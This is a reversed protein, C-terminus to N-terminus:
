FKFVSKAEAIRESLSTATDEGSAACKFIPELVEAFFGNLGEQMIQAGSQYRVLGMFVGHGIAGLGSAEDAIFKNLAKCVAVVASANVIERDRLYDELAGYDCECRIWRFAKAISPSVCKHESLTCLVYLNKPVAFYSRGDKLVVSARAKEGEEFGDIVHSNKTRILSLEDEEDYRRDLLVAAEGFIKDLSAAGANDILFYYEGKPDNLAEKCLAKFEGSIFSEGYFGDIFDRYEFDEHLCVYRFNKAALKKETIL